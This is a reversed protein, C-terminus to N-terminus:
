KKTQTGKVVFMEAMAARVQEGQVSLSVENKRMDNPHPNILLLDFGETIGLKENYKFSKLLRNLDAHSLDCFTLIDRCLCPGDSLAVYLYARLCSVPLKKSVHGQLYGLVRFM